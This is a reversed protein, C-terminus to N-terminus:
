TMVTGLIIIQLSIVGGICVQSINLLAEIYIELESYVCNASM